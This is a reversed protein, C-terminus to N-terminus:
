LRQIKRGFRGFAPVLDTREPSESRPHDETGGPFTTKGVKLVYVTVPEEPPTFAGGDGVIMTVYGEDPGSASLAYSDVAMDSDTVEALEGVGKSVTLAPNVIFQGPVQPNEYFTEIITSLNAVAADWSAKTPDSSPCLAKVVELDGSTQGGLLVNLLLYDDGMVEDVFEGKLVLQGKSGRVPDFFFRKALHPPLNPFYTKGQYAETRVGDPLKTLGESSLTKLAFFKERTPDHLTVAPAANTIIKAVAQQYLLEVSTQGRVAPLGNKASTLTQGFQLEPPKGPWVPRYVIDLSATTKQDAAGVFQGAGNVPRLYPVITGNAPVIGWGPWAFGELTKYYFRMTFSNTPTAPEALFPPRGVYTANNLAYQNASVVTLPAQAVVSGSAVVNLVLTNTVKSGDGTDTIILNLNPSEVTTPIGTIVLGNTSGFRLGTPLASGDATNIILTDAQRSLHITYHFPQNRVATAAPLLTSFTNNSSNYTGAQLAPLGAHLGRLVWFNQKRDRYTFKAYNPYINTMSPSWGDPFDGAAASPETNYNTLTSTTVAGFDVSVFETPAELLPLPMPAQLVRGAGSRDVNGGATVIYDFVLGAQPKERLVKFAKMSPRGDSGTYDLLVYPASSYTTGEGTLVAPSTSAVRNLDDRLAYAQGGSMLAHEENPNYGVKAPDNQVYISGKAELSSLAGSGANSALVIESQGAPWALTYRGIVAPWYIPKFGNLLNMVANTSSQRYWWVELNNQGPIANVPIIAGQSAKEIGSVFPDVYAGPHFSNGASQLIYGGLYAGSAGLENSPALLRDGVNVTASIIRPAVPTLPSNAENWSFNRSASDWGTLNTALTGVFSAPQKLSGDLWSFVRLFAVEDGASLRLLTRHVPNAQDLHTYFGFTETLQARPKDLPDQYQIFPLNESPLSVATLKSQNKTGVDPRVYHSYKAVDTPWVLKYRSYLRPWRLGQNGTELWHVLVDNLNISERTAFFETRDTGVINHQFLFPQIGGVLVPEPVLATDEVNDTSPTLVEGLEATQDWPVAQQVVDVIEYGLHSYLGGGLYEGLLEVFVRGEINHAFIQMQSSDFWLTRLEDLRNTTVMESQGPAVYEATVREPFTSNYAIVVSNVRGRPVNVPKGTTQFSAETWYIMRPTKDASGSVVYDVTYNTYYLGSTYDYRAPNSDFDAPKTISPKAARWKIQIMGPQTAFVSGAHPSWYYPAGAHANASNPEAVWYDKPTIGTLLVGDAGVAPPTILSGFSFSVQRSLYAPSAQASRLVVTRVGSTSRPLDLQVANKVYSLSGNLSTRGSFKPVVLGGFVLVGRFQNPTAAPQAPQRGDSGTPTNVTGSIPLGRKSHFNIGRSYNISYLVAEQDFQITVAGVSLSCLPIFLSLFRVFFKM